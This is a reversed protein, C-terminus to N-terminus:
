GVTRPGPGRLYDLLWARGFTWDRKVTTESINLAVAVESETLGGFFRLEIVRAAREDVKRLEDLGLDVEIVDRDAPAPTEGSEALSVKVMRSSRKRAHEVLMRRVQRAAVALFHARDRWDVEFGGIMRLYLEHVMATPQLTHGSREGRMSSAAIRRLDHYMADFLITGARQDGGRWRQLLQTIPEPM